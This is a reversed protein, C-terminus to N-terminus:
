SGSSVQAPEREIRFLFSPAALIRELGRQIGADFSQGARGERYFRMLVELDAEAAPRRYARTAVSSLIQRAHSKPRPMRRCVYSCGAACPRIAPRWPAM